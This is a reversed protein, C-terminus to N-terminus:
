YEVFSNKFVDLTKIGRLPITIVKRLRFNYWDFVECGLM